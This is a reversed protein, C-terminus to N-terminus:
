AGSIVMTILCNLRERRLFSGGSARAYKSSSMNILSAVFEVWHGYAAGCIDLTCRETRESRAHLRVRLSERTCIKVTQRSM